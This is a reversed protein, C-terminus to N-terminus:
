APVVRVQEAPAVLHRGLDVLDEIEAEIYKPCESEVLKFQVEASTRGFSDAALSSQSRASLANSSVSRREPILYWIL